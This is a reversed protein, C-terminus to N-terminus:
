LSRKQRRQAKIYHELVAAASLINKKEFRQAFVKLKRLNIKQINQLRMEILYEETVLIHRLYFLDLLAKEPTAIFATQKSLQSSEYGWFLSNLIHQYAFVGLFTKYRAPRKTTVCTYVSVAEPILDHFELAKELSVYSPKHLVCAVFFEYPEVKRYTDALIYQGRRLQLLRGAKQWRSLQVAVGETQPMGVQLTESDIVPLGKVKKVFEEFKM